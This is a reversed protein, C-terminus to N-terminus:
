MKKQHFFPSISHARDFFARYLQALLRVKKCFNVPFICPNIIYVCDSVSNVSFHSRFLPINVSSFISFDYATCCPKPSIVHRVVCHIIRVCCPTHRNSQEVSSFCVSLVSYLAAKLLLSIPQLVTGETSPSRSNHLKLFFSSSAPCM